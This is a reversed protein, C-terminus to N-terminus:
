LPKFPRKQFAMKPPEDNIYTDSREIEVSQFTYNSYKNYAVNRQLFKQRM